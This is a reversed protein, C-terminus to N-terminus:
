NITNGREIGNRLKKFDFIPKGLNHETEINAKKSANEDTLTGLINSSEKLSEASPNVKELDLFSKVASIPNDKDLKKLNEVPNTRGATTTQSNEEEKESNQKVANNLMDFIKIAAGTSNLDNGLSSDKSNSNKSNGVSSKDVHSDKLTNNSNKDVNKSDKDFNKSNKDVNKSNEDVNKSNEDVNKSNEDVNKSNEDVKKSNGEVNAASANLVAGAIDRGPGANTKNKAGEKMSSKMMKTYKKLVVLVRKLFQSDNSHLVKEKLLGLNANPDDFNLDKSSGAIPEHLTKAGVSGTTSRTDLSQKKEGNASANYNTKKVKQPSDGGSTEINIRKDGPRIVVAAQKSNIAPAEKGNEERFTVKSGGPSGQSGLKRTPPAFDTPRHRTKNTVDDNYYILGQKMTNGQFTDQLNKTKKLFSSLNEGGTTKSPLRPQIPQKQAHASHSFTTPITFGSIHNRAVQSKPPIPFNMPIKSPVINNRKVNQSVVQTTKRQNTAPISYRPIAKTSSPTKPIKNRGYAVFPMPASPRRVAAYQWPYPASLAGSRGWPVKPNLTRLIPRQVAVNRIPQQVLSNTIPRRPSVYYAAGHPQPKTTYLPSRQGYTRTAAPSGMHARPQTQAFTRPQLPAFARPQLPAFARPQLPAFARPQVYTKTDLPTYPRAPAYTRPRVQPYTRPQLGPSSPRTQGPSYYTRRLPIM